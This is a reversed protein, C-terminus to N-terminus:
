PRAVDELLRRHLRGALEIVRQIEPSANEPMEVASPIAAVPIKIRGNLAEHQEIFIALFYALIKAQIWPITIATHQSVRLASPTGSDLQGFVMTMDVYTPEIVINNAYLSEFDDDRSFNSRNDTAKSEQHGEEQDQMETKGM